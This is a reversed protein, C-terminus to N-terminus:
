FRKWQPVPRLREREVRPDRGADVEDNFHAARTWATDLDCMGLSMTHKGGDGGTWRLQWVLSGGRKRYYLRRSVCHCGPNPLSELYEPTPKGVREQQVENNWRRPPPPTRPAVRETVPAKRQDALSIIGIISGGKVAALDGIDAEVPVAFTMFEVDVEIKGKPLM